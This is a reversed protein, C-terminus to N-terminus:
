LMLWIVWLGSTFCECGKGVVESRSHKKQATKEGEIGCGEGGHQIVMADNM